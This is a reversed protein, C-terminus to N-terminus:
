RWEDDKCGEADRGRDDATRLAAGNEDPEEDTGAKGPDAEEGHDHVAGLDILGLSLARAAPPDVLEVHLDTAGAALVHVEGIWGLDPM